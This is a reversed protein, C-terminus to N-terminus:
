RDNEIGAVSEMIRVLKDENVMKSYYREVVDRANKGIETMMADDFILKNINDVLENEEFVFIDRGPKAWELGLMAEPTTFVPLSCSMPEILKTLPGTTSIREPVLLADLHSLQSAYDHVSDLYGTYKVRNHVIRNDCHGIVVFSVRSDFDKLRSYLFELSTRQRVYERGVDFPGILGIIKTDPTKPKTTARFLMTDVFLPVVDIRSNFVQYFELTSNCDTIIFDSHKMVFKELSQDLKLLMGSHGIAEHNKSFISDADFGVKYKRIKSVLYVPLFGLWEHSCYVVDFKNKLLTLTLKLNWLLIPIFKVPFPLSKYTLLKMGLSIIHVGDMGALKDHNNDSSTIVSISFGRKKLIDVLRYVRVTIGMAGAIDEFVVIAIKAM